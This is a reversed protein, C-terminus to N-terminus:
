HIQVDTLKYCGNQLKILKKFNVSMPSVDLRKSPWPYLQCELNTGTFEKPRGPKHLFKLDFDQSNNGALVKGWHNREM